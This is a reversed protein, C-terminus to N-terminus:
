RVDQPHAPLRQRALACLAAGVQIGRAGVVAAQPALDVRQEPPAGVQAREQVGRRPPRRCRELRTRAQARVIDEGQGALAAHALHIAGAVGAEVACDGDLDEWGLEIAVGFPERSELSLRPRDGAQIVGVDAREVVHALFAAHPEEHHLVDLALCEGLEQPVSRRRHVLRQPHRGLDYIRDRGRVPAPHNM